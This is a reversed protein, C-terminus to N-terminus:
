RCSISGAQQRRLRGPPDGFWRRCARHLSTADKYGLREAVDERPLRTEFILFRARDKMSQDILDRASTGCQQLRRELGRPSLNFAKAVQDISPRGTGIGALYQEIRRVLTSPIMMEREAELLRDLAFRHLVPDRLLLRRSLHSRPIRIRAASKGYAPQFGLMDALRDAYAPAPWPFEVAPRDGVGSTIAEFTSASSFLLIETAARREPEKVAVAIRIELDMSAVATSRLIKIYPMQVPVFRVFDDIADGLTEASRVLLGLLGQPRDRWARASDITWSPGFLRNLNEFQRLQAAVEVTPAPDEIDEETLGTGDLIAEKLAADAGFHDLLFAFYRKPSAFRGRDSPPPQAADIVM